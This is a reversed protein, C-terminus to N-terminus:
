SNSVSKQSELFISFIKLSSLRLSSLKPSEWIKTIEWSSNKFNESNKIEKILDSYKKM